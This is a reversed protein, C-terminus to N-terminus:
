DKQSWLIMNKLMRDKSKTHIAKRPLELKEPYGLLLETDYSLDVVKITVDISYGIRNNKIRYDGSTLNKYREKCTYFDSYDKCFELCNITYVPNPTESVLELEWDSFDVEEDELIELDSYKEPVLALKLEDAYAFFGHGPKEFYQMDVLSAWRFDRKINGKEDRSQLHKLEINSIINYKANPGAQLHFYEKTIPKIM